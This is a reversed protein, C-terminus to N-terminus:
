LSKGNFIKDVLHASMYDDSTVKNKDHSKFSIKVFKYDYLLIDPHHDIEESLKGVHNIFDLAKNFDEFQFIRYISNNDFGWMNLDTKDELRDLYDKYKKFIPM